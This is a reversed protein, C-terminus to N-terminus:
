VFYKADLLTKSSISGKQTIGDLDLFDDYTMKYYWCTYVAPIVIWIIAMVIQYEFIVDGILYNILGANMFFAVAAALYQLRKKNGSIMVICFASLVQWVGIAFQLIFYFILFYPSIFALLVSTLAFGIILSQVAHDFELINKSIQM